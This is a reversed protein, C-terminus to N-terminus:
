VLSYLPNSRGKNARFRQYGLGFILVFLLVVLVILWYYTVNSAKNSPVVAMESIFSVVSGIAWDISMGNISKTIVVNKSAEEPPLGLALMVSPIYASSFCYKNMDAKTLDPKNTKATEYPLACWETGKQELSALLPSPGEEVGFFKPTYYFNEIAFLKEGRLDPQFNGVFGCTACTHAKAFLSKEIMARCKVFDGAGSHQSNKLACPNGTNEIQRFSSSIVTDMAMELGYGLYSHTYVMLSSGGLKVEFLKAKEEMTMNDLPPCFTVQLSAGGMEIVGITDEETIDPKFKKGLLNVSIFGFLGEESGSIIRAWEPRFWFGWTSLEQRVSALILDSEITPISRLGATAQLLLPTSTWQNEPITRQAFSKLNRLSESAKQPEQSYSSLGPKQKLNQSAAVSPLDSTGDFSYKHVHIRSGSSGADIIIAYGESRIVDGAVAGRSFLFLGCFLVCCFAAIMKISKAKTIIQQM